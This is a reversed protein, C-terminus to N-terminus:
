RRYGRCAFFDFDHVPRGARAVTLTELPDCAEFWAQGNAEPRGRLYDPVVLLGGQGPRPSDYWLDFQDYRTDTVQVRHPRGYWAIRSALSWNGVYITPEDFGGPMHNSLELAREAAEQWGILDGLPHRYPQFPLWPQLLLSHILLGLVVSYLASGKAISRVWRTSWGRVLWRATLPALLAWGLLTWHPLTQEYGAGWGFLVLIPLAFALSLAVGPHRRERWGALLAAVGFIFVAPAYAVVQIAQSTAFRAFSWSRDPAGHELQYRFSLWEHTGNWYLVPFITILAVLVALWPWPTVLVRWRGQLAIFAVAGAVLTVATYKSLGALGFLLGVVLWDGGRGQRVARFTFLAAGLGFVLLPGEPVLAMSILQFILASQLTAVAITAVWPSTEPFLERALRFVLYSALLSLLVPWLRLAWEGQAFPLVLAQLWGVMPPHDFYSWDLRLGYLAYHAEDVSLAFRGAVLLHLM